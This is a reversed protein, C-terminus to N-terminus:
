RRIKWNRWLDEGYRAIFDRDEQTLSRLWDRRKKLREEAREDRENQPEPQEDREDEFFEDEEKYQKPQQEPQESMKRLEMKKQMVICRKM